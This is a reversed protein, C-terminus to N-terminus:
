MVGPGLGVTGAGRALISPSQLRMPSYSVLLWEFFPHLRDTRDDCIVELYDLRTCFGYDELVKRRHRM